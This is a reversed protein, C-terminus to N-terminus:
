TTTAARSSSGATAGFRGVDGTAMLGDVLDKGGGGTYGEFLLGNGVFIRGAEGDPVPEGDDDLIQM